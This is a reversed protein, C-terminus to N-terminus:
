TRKAFLILHAGFTPFIDALWEFIKGSPHRRSSYLVHSAIVKEVIFGHNEVLAILTKKTYFHYHYPAYVFMPVRGIMVLLRNLSYSLNPTTLVMKGEQKLVRHCEDLFDGEDFMHEIIEGATILDYAGNDVPLRNNLDCQMIEFDTDKHENIDLGTCSWGLPHMYDSFSGKSYGIDLLKGPRECYDSLHRVAKKIRPPDPVEVGKHAESQISQIRTTSSQMGSEGRISKNTVMVGRKM